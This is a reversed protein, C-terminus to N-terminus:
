PSFIQTWIGESCYGEDPIAQVTNKKEKKHTATHSFKRTKFSWYKQKRESISIIGEIQKKLWVKGTSLGTETQEIFMEAHGIIKIWWVLHLINMVIVCLLHGLATHQVEATCTGTQMRSNCFQHKKFGRYMKLFSALFPHGNQGRVLHSEM